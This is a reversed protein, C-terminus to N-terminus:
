SRLTLFVWTAEVTREDKLATRLLKEDGRLLGTNPRDTATEILFDLLPMGTEWVLTAARKREDDDLQGLEL